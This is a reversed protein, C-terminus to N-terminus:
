EEVGKKLIETFQKIVSNRIEIEEDLQELQSIKETTVTIYLSLAKTPDTVFRFHFGKIPVLAGINCTLSQLRVQELGVELVKYTTLSTIDIYIEGEKIEPM